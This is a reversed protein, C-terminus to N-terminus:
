CKKDANRKAENKTMYWFNIRCHNGKVSIIVSENFSMAKKMLDHCGNCVEPQFTINIDIIGTIVFLVSVRVMSKTLPLEKLCM